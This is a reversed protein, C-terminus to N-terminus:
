MRYLFIRLVEFKELASLMQDKVNDVDCLIPLLQTYLQVKDTTEGRQLINNNAEGLTCTSISLNQDSSVTFTGELVVTYSESGYNTMERLLDRMSEATCLISVCIDDSNTPYCLNTIYHNGDNLGLNEM